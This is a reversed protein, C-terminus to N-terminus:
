DTEQTKPKNSRNSDLVPEAAGIQILFAADVADKEVVDGISHGSLHGVLVKVKMSNM